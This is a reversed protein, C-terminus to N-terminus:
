REFYIFMKLLHSLLFRAAIKRGRATRLKTEQVQAILMLCVSQSFAHFLMRGHKLFLAPYVAIWDRVTPCSCYQLFESIHGVSRCPLTYLRTDAVLFGYWESM